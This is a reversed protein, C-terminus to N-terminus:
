TSLRLNPLNPSRRTEPAPDEEPGRVFTSKAGGVVCLRIVLYSPGNGTSPKGTPPVLVGLDNMLVQCIPRGKHLTVRPRAAWQSSCKRM